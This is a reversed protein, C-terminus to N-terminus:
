TKAGQNAEMRMLMIKALTLVVFTIVFLALGLALFTAIFTKKM